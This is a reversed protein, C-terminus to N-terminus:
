AVVWAPDPVSMRRYSNVSRRMEKMDAGNTVGSARFRCLYVCLGLILTRVQAPLTDATWGCVYDFRYRRQTNWYTVDEWPFYPRGHGARSENYYLSDRRPDITGSGTDLIFKDNGIDTITGDEEM